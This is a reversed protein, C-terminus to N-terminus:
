APGTMDHDAREWLGGCRTEFQRPTLSFQRVNAVPEVTARPRQPREEDRRRRQPAFGEARLVESVATASLPLGQQKLSEGIEYVSYNRKRLEIISERAASKKPQERPGPRPSAFFVPDPDRRFHYRLM